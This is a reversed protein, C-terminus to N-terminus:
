ILKSFFGGIMAKFGTSSRSDKLKSVKSKVKAAPAVPSLDQNSKQFSWVDGGGGRIPKVINKASIPAVESARPSVAVAHTPKQFAGINRELREYKNRLQQMEEDKADLEKRLAVIADYLQMSIVQRRESELEGIREESEKVKRKPSDVSIIGELKEQEKELMEQLTLIQQDRFELEINMTAREEEISRVKMTLQQEAISATELAQKLESQVRNFAVKMDAFKRKKEAYKSELAEKAQQLESHKVCLSMESSASTDSEVLESLPLDSLSKRQHSQTEGPLAQLDWSLSIGKNLQIESFVGLTERITRKLIDVGPYTERFGTIDNDVLNLDARLRVVANRMKTMDSVKKQNDVLAKELSNETEELRKQLNGVEEQCNRELEANQLLLRQEEHCRFSLDSELEQKEVRMKQLEENLSVIEIHQKLLTLSQAPSVTSVSVPEHKIEPAEERAIEGQFSADIIGTIEQVLVPHTSYKVQIHSQIRNLIEAQKQIEREAQELKILLEKASREQNVIPKNQIKKARQGFRLTGLTEMDNYSSMSCAIVLTTQSNGGLAEQLLRTLKSDRYPVFAAKETLANIVMGLASLSKNIMKAEELQQGTVNTKGIKESGALDVFHLKGSRRTGTDVDKQDIHVIFISHSRSSRENMRTAAISRNAAGTQMVAMMEAPSAVYLETADQIYIGRGKDEKVQLNSKTEDLLDQIREMYIELFSVKISFETAASANILGVFLADMMRPIIGKQEQDNISPGEMTHTKGSGTQGYAFLTGNYGSLVGSVVPGAAAEFVNRQSTEPGFVHDFTFSHVEEGKREAATRIKIATPAYEVCCYGGSEREVKNEPRLRCIVRINGGSM